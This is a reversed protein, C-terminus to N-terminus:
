LVKVTMTQFWLRRASRPVGGEDVGPSIGQSGSSAASFAAWAAPAWRPEAALGPQGVHRLDPDAVMQVAAEGAVKGGRVPLPAHYRREGLSLGALQDGGPRLNVASPFEGAHLRTLWGACQRLWGM